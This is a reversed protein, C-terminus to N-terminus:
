RVWGVRRSACEKVLQWFVVRGQPALPGGLPEQGRGWALVREPTFTSCEGQVLFEEFLM